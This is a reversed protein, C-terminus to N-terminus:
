QKDNLQNCEEEIHLNRFILGRNEQQIRASATELNEGNCLSTIYEHWDGDVGKYEGIIWKVIM